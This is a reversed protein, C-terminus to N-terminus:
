WRHEMGHVVAGGGGAVPAQIGNARESPVVGHGDLAIICVSVAPGHDVTSLQWRPGKSWFCHSEAAEDVKDPLSFFSESGGKNM